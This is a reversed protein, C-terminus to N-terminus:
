FRHQMLREDKGSDVTFGAFEGSNSQQSTGTPGKGIYTHATTLAYISGGVRILGGLTAEGGKINFDLIRSLTGCMTRADTLFSAEVISGSMPGPNLPTSITSSCLSIEQVIVRCRFSSPIFDRKKLGSTISKQQTEDLCLFLITPQIQSRSMDPCTSVCDLMIQRDQLPLHLLIGLLKGKIKLRFEQLLAPEVVVDPVVYCDQALRRLPELPITEPDLSSAAEIDPEFANLEPQNLDTSNFYPTEGERRTASCSPIELVAFAAEPSRADSSSKSRLTNGPLAFPSTSKLFSVINNEERFSSKKLDNTPKAPTYSAKRRASFDFKLRSKKKQTRLIIGPSKKDLESPTAPVSNLVELTDIPCSEPPSGLRPNRYAVLM